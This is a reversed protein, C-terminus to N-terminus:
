ITKRGKWKNSLRTIPDEEKGLEFPIIKPLLEEEEEM